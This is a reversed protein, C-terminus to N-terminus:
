IMESFSPPPSDKKLTVCVCLCLVLWPQEDSTMEAIEKWHKMKQKQKRVSKQYAYSDDIM